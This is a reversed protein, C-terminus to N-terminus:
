GIRKEDPAPLNTMDEIIAAMLMFKGWKGPRLSCANVIELAPGHVLHIGEPHYTILM